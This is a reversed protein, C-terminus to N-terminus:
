QDSTTETPLNLKYAIHEMGSHSLELRTFTWASDELAEYARETILVEERGAQDEGLKCALNIEDGFVDHTGIILMEGCGIGISIHMEDPVPLPRNAVTIDHCLAAACTVASDADRFAAFFNDADHRLVRGGHHKVVPAIMRELRELLALFHVVGRDQVTKSFSCTDIVMVALRHQFREQIEFMAADREDPHENYRRLLRSLETRSPGTPLLV